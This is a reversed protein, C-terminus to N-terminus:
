QAYTNSEEEPKTSHVINFLRDEVKQIHPARTKKISKGLSLQTLISETDAQEKQMEGLFNFISQPAKGM